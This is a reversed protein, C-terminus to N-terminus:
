GARAGYPMFAGDKVYRAHYEAVKGEDVTVGLGPAEIRGWTPGDAIPLREALIDDAMMQATQQHGLCANPAALMLHQGAAAALGFEGHTHKCVQIGHAHALHCLMMFRRISGVWYPSIGVGATGSERLPNGSAPMIHNM